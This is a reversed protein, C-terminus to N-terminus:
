ENRLTQISAGDSGPPTLDGKYAKIKGDTYLASRLESAGELWIRPVGTPHRICLMDIILTNTNRSAWHQASPCVSSVYPYSNDKDELSGPGLAPHPLCVSGQGPFCCARVHTGIDCNIFPKTASAAGHSPRRPGNKHPFCPMESLGLDDLLYAPAEQLRKLAGYELRRKSKGSEPDGRKSAGM